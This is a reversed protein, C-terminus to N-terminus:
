EVQSGKVPHHMLPAAKVVPQVAKGEAVGVDRGHSVLNNHHKNNNCKNNYGDTELDRM